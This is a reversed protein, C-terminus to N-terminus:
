YNSARLALRNSREHGRATLTPCLSPEACKGGPPALLQPGPFLGCADERARKQFPICACKQPERRAETRGSSGLVDARSAAHLSCERKGVPLVEQSGESGAGDLTAAYPQPLRVAAASPYPTTCTHHIWCGRPALRHHGRRRSRLSPSPPVVEFHQTRWCSPLCAAGWAAAAPRAAIPPRWGEPVEGPPGQGVASCLCLRLLHAERRLSVAPGHARAAVGCAAEEVMCRQSAPGEQAHRWPHPLPPHPSSLSSSSESFMPALPRRAREEHQVAWSCCRREQPSSSTLCTHSYHGM